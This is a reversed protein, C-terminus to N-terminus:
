IKDPRGSLPFCHNVMNNNLGNFHTKAGFGFAAIRKDSDYSLLIQSIGSIAIQYQNPANPNMFHLSTPAKPIGNSGTFDIAVAMNLQLGGRLYDVFSPKKV